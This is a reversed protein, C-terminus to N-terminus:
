YTIILKGDKVELMDEELPTGNIYIEFNNFTYKLTWKILDGLRM